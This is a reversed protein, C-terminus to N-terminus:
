GRCPDGRWASRGRSSLRVDCGAGRWSSASGAPQNHRPTPQAWQPQASAVLDPRRSQRRDRRVDIGRCRHRRLRMLAVFSIAGVAPTLTLMRGLALWGLVPVVGVVVIILVLVAVPGRHTPFALPTARRWRAPLGPSSALALLPTAALVILVPLAFVKEAPRRRDRRGRPSPGTVTGSSRRHGTRHRTTAWAAPWPAWPDATTSSARRIRRGSAGLRRGLNPHHTGRAVPSTGLPPPDWDAYRRPHPSTILM